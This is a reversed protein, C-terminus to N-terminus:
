CARTREIVDDLDKGTAVDRVHLTSQENGNRSLGYALLIGDRSPFWWDLAVTGDAALQNPDVLVREKGRLGERVYLIAQNQKGERKSYFYRGKAPVPTGLSGIDLLASLRERIKERGPLQDLLSRTYANQKEVWARVEPNDAEELWRYPDAVEVGHLKDIVKDTRTPPYAPRESDMAHLSRT